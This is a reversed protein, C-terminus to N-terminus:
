CLHYIFENRHTNNSSTKTKISFGANIANVQYSYPYSYSYLYLYYKVKEIPYPSLFTCLRGMGTRIGTTIDMEVM